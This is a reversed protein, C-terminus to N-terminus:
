VIDGLDGDQAHPFWQSLKVRARAKIEPTIASAVYAVAAILAAWDDALGAFPLFDPILDMPLIMYGLAGAIVAKYRAPTNEDTLTYFLMLAYYVLKAGAKSAIKKLKGWFEPESYNGQYQPLDNSTLNKDSMIRNKVHRSGCEHCCASM